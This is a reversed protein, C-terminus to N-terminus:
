QPTGPRDRPPAQPDRPPGQPDRPPGQASRPRGQPDMNKGGLAKDHISPFYSTKTIERLAVIPDM